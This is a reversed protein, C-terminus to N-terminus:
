KEGNMWIKFDGTRAKSVIVEIGPEPQLDLKLKYNFYNHVTRIAGISSIVQRNVRFFQQPDLKQELQELTFNILHKKHYTTVIFLAKDEAYFYAIESTTIPVLMDGKNILFRTKYAQAPQIQFTRLLELLGKSTNSKEYFKCIKYFKDLSNRLKEINIPKLLYDISNLEFAKIAYEDYATTFIIPVSVDVKEFISFSKGDALQIDLFIIDYSQTEMLHRVSAKISDIPGNIEIGPEIEKLLQMLRHAALDEDEIILAKM